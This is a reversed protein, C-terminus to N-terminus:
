IKASSGVESTAQPGLLLFSTRFATDPFPRASGSPCACQEPESTKANQHLVDRGSRAPNRPM